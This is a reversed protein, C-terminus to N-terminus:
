IASYGLLIDRLRVFQQPGLPKTLIDAVNNESSVHIFRIVNTKILEILFNIRRLYHKVRKHNGSFNQALTIMSSNDAFVVTPEAQPFGLENLLDRFWQVEKAADVAAANEAETSSLTTNDQKFSKSYFMGGIGGLAFCYGTHSKSDTHCSFAADVYCHLQTASVANVSKTQHFKIGLHITSKLYLAVRILAQWDRKTPANARTALRNVAYAIDPRTKILFLLQGLFRMYKLFEVPEADDQYDDSFTSAMPVTPLAGMFTDLNYESLIDQIKTPQTLLVSGDELYDIRMGLFGSLEDMRKIKYKRMMMRMFADILDQSSAAIAFDDVHVFCVTLNDKDRLYFLCPDSQTRTYGNSMLHNAVHEYFAQPSEPLGYLAKKLKWYVKKGNMIKLPLSMFTPSDDPVRSYLFASQVDLGAIFMGLIVALLFIIKLSKEHGTPAFYSRISDSTQQKPNNKGRDGLACLRVKRETVKGTVPERKKKLVLKSPYLPADHPIDPFLVEEATGMAKLKAFESRIAQEWGLPGLWNVSTMAETLTPEDDSEVENTNTPLEVASLIYKDSSYTSQAVRKRKSLRSAINTSPSSTNRDAKADPQEDEDSSSDDSVLESPEDSDSDESLQVIDISNSPLSPEVTNQVDDIIEKDDNLDLFRIGASKLLMNEPLIITNEPSLIVNAPADEDSQYLLDNGVNVASVDKRKYTRNGKRKPLYVLVGRNATPTSGLVYGFENNTSFKFGNKKKEQRLRHVVVAQGFSFLFRVNLDVHQGTLHFMPSADLTLSNPSHNWTDCCMILASTWFSNNLNEQNCLIAATLNAVTQVSREVPNQFQSEPLAPQVTIQRNNLELTITADTEVSGADVRLVRVDKSYSRFFARVSLCAVLFTTKSKVLYPILLGVLLERFLFFGTYGGRGAISVACYDVSIAYGVYPPKAGSGVSVPLRRTKALKCQLCDRLKFADYIFQASLNSNLWAGNSIANAMMEPAVHGMRQHLEMVKNVISTTMRSKKKASTPGAITFSPLAPADPLAKFVDKINFLYLESALNVPAEFVLQDPSGHPGKKSIVCKM